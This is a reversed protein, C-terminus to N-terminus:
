KWSDKKKIIEVDSFLGQQWFKRIASTIKEGPVEVEDGVKLGSSQILISKDYYKVGTIEIDAITLKRPSAYYIPSGTSDAVQSFGRPVCAIFVIFLLILTRQM